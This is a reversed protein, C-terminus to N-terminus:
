WVKDICFTGAIFHKCRQSSGGENLSDNQVMRAKDTVIDIFTQYVELVEQM